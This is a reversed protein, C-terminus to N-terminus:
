YLGGLKLKKYVECESELTADDAFGVVKGDDIVAIKDANKVTSLRHAIVIIIKNKSLSEIAKTISKESENDLASTAEDFILIQPDNYLARAIAIRQRQGGSLNAGFEDLITNIGNKLGLTFEYANAMKLAKIVKQEDFEGGYAVNAAVSDNFIYVRQTVLGIHSRLEQLNFESIDNENILINGNTPDYFRMILNILSTKGGGSSGVIAILEGKAAKLNIGNLVKKDGYGFHIDQISLSNVVSPFTTHGGIINPTKDFLEFTRESAAVADQLDSYIKSIRNIPTFIMSLAVLFSFFSGITIKGDIVEKGGIIIVVGVGIVGIIEIIPNVLESIKVSKLNLKFFNENHKSFNAVAKKEANNAKIIEMNSFIESLISSIDSTKEQSNKSIKKIKESLMLLPYIAIPLVVLAYFSLKPSQYIVVAVLGIATILERSLEPLMSSVVRRIREIDNINRSILEGTRYKHFFEMDLYLLRNLLNNRFKKIIDQGIYETFYAQMYTGVNKIIYIAILAYPLLYLLNSNKEVFIQDLVPKVLYASAATGLSAMLMGIAVLIFQPIYSKFYSKFRKFVNIIGRM